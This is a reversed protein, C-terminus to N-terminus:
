AGGISAGDDLLRLMAAGAAAEDGAEIAGVLSERIELARSDATERPAAALARGLLTSLSIMLANGSARALARHFDASAQRRIQRSAGADRLAALCRQLEAIQAPTRRIAAMRAAAPEIIQRLETLERQFDPDLGYDAKWALVDPDFYNWGSPDLVRTGVGARSSVFGKAALTKYVERLVTRSVGFRALIMPEAPLLEAPAFVGALIEGGLARAIDEQSSPNREKQGPNRAPYTPERAPQHQVDM